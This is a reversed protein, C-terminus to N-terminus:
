QLSNITKLRRNIKKLYTMATINKDDNLLIRNFVNKAKQFDQNGYYHVGIKLLLNTEDFIAEVKEETIEEVKEKKTVVEKTKVKEVRKVKQYNKGLLSQYSKIVRNKPYVKELQSFLKRAEKYKKESYLEKGDALFIFYNTKLIDRAKVILPNKYDYFFLEEYEKHLAIFSDIKGDYSNIKKNLEDELKKLYLSVEKDQKLKELLTSAEKDDKNLEMKNFFYLAKIKDKKMLAKAKKFYSKSNSVAEKNLLKIFNKSYISKQEYFNVKEYSKLAMKYHSNYYFTSGENKYFAIEDKTKQYVKQKEDETLLNIDNKVSCATFFLATVVLLLYRM